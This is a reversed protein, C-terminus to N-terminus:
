INRSLERKYRYNSYRVAILPAYKTLRYIVLDQIDEVNLITNANRVEDSVDEAIVEILKDSMRSRSDVEANAKKIATIIRTEDYEVEKGNRKIIKM